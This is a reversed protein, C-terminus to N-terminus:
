NNGVKLAYNSKGKSIYSRQELSKKFMFRKDPTISQYNTTLHMKFEM